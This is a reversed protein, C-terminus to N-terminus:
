TFSVDVGGRSATTLTDTMVAVAQSLTLASDAASKALGVSQQSQHEIAQDSHHASLKAAQGAADLLAQRVEQPTM